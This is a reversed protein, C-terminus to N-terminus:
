FKFFITVYQCRQKEKIAETLIHTNVSSFIKFTKRVPTLPTTLPKASSSGDPLSNDISTFVTYDVPMSDTTATANLTTITNTIPTNTSVPTNTTVITFADGDVAAAGIERNSAAFALLLLLAAAISCPRSSLVSPLSMSMNVHRAHFKSHVPPPRVGTSDHEHLNRPPPPPPLPQRSVFRNTSRSYYYYMLLQTYVVVQLGYVIIIIIKQSESFLLSHISKVM